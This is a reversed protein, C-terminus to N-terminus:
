GHHSGNSHPPNNSDILAVTKGNKALYYGAAMGMSGAGIIAVDYIM